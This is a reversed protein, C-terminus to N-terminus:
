MRWIILEVEVTNYITGSSDLEECYFSLDNEESVRSLSVPGNKSQVRDQKHVTIMTTATVANQSPDGNEVFLSNRDPESACSLEINYVIGRQTLTQNLLEGFGGPVPAGFNFAGEATGGYYSAEELSGEFEGSSANWNLLSRSLNGSAQSTALVDDALKYQNLEVEQSATSSSTPTIAVSQVGYIMAVILLFAATFGEITHLQGKNDVM